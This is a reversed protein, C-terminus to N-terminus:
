LAAASFFVLGHSDRGKSVEVDRERERERERELTRAKRWAVLVHQARNTTNVGKAETAISGSSLSSEYGSITPPKIM